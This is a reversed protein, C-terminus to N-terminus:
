DCVTGFASLVLLADSVNVAGDGTVDFECDAECGFDGLISLIDSVSVVLDGDADGPCASISQEQCANWLGTLTNQLGDNVVAEVQSICVMGNASGTWHVRLLPIFELNKPITSGDYSLTVVDQGGPTHSPEGTYLSPDILSYTQAINIGNFELQYAYIRNDPNLVLVDFYQEDWNVDGVTFTVSDYPNVLNPVPFDCHTHVGSSDPHTHAENWYQCDSLIAADTVNIM